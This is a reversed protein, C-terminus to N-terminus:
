RLAELAPLWYNNFVFDAGYQAAFDQAVESRGRGRSYAATMAEILSPVGPTIMWAKQMADWWPQGQVLWGDGLLESSATANSCIVPTGCAQAEVQPIGFGEGMSPILLCDMATYIAALLDNGIGARYLYQDVFVIQDDSIDCAKALDRLNIGGMGGRDETHIYLVADRNQKAFMSFALFTEPFSKRNPVIGKNASVMGFVFRDDDIGMFERGGLERGSATISATPKFVPEIGHPVYLCDIGAIHLMEEGFRSMAIPTVNPQRCWAAVDVPVPSHDIPVWSAIQPVDAWPDGKFVYVDYLTILLPDLAEHEHAWAQMHAPIVDNSHIDFGRPYQRIGHWDLTTGELGYNSAVAVQHGAAALRTVAQATQAGYGTRVWPSNSNWLIARSETRPKVKPKRTNSM